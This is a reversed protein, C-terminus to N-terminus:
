AALDVASRDFGEPLSSEQEIEAIMEERESKDMESHILEVAKRISVFNGNPNQSRMLEVTEKKNIDFPSRLKIEGTFGPKKKECLFRVMSIIKAQGRLVHRMYRADKKEETTVHVQGKEDLNFISRPFGNTACIESLTKDIMEIGKTISELDRQIYAPLQGGVPIPFVEQNLSFVRQQEIAQKAKSTMNPEVQTSNTARQLSEVPAALKARFHKIREQRLQTKIENIEQLQEWVLDLISTGMFNRSSRRRNIQKLTFSETQVTDGLEAFRAITGLNVPNGQTDDPKNLRYLQRKYQKESHEEVYAFYMPRNQSDYETLPIIIKGSTIPMHTLAPLDPYWYAPNVIIATDPDDKVFQPVMYGNGYLDAAAEELIEKLEIEEAWDQLDDDEISLDTVTDVVLQNILTAGANLELMRVNKGLLKNQFYEHIPFAPDDGEYPRGQAVKSYKEQQKAHDIEQLTRFKTFAM